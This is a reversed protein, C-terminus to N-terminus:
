SCVLVRSAYEFAPNVRGAAKKHGKRPFSSTAKVFKRTCLVTTISKFSNSSKAYYYRGEQARYVLARSVM